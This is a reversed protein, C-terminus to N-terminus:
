YLLICKFQPQLQVVAASECSLNVNANLRGPGALKLAAFVNKRVSGCVSVCVDSALSPHKKALKLSKKEDRKQHACVSVLWWLVISCGDILSSHNSFFRLPTIIRNLHLIVTESLSPTPTFFSFPFLSLSLSFYIFLSLFFNLFHPVTKSSPLIAINFQM